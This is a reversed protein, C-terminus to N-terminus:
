KSPCHDSLWRKLDGIFVEPNLEFELTHSANPYEIVRKDATAFQEVFRRTAANDIIRDKGALMLLVPLNVSPPAQRLYRDLRVSEVLLRATAQRLSLADNRIFEQWCRTATFLEPDSLPIPFIRTPKVLRSWAIQLRERLPPHVKPFYGPCLLAVGDIEGPRARQAALALKAGWSIALLFVPASRGAASRLHAIFETIDEALRRYGPADGRAAENLGSGRRDLFYVAFGAQGLSSCSYEYWGGHSQIGHLCVIQGRAQNGAEQRAPFFRYRWVYGDSATFTEVRHTRHM